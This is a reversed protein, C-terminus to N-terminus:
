FQIKTNGGGWCKAGRIFYDNKKKTIELKKKSSKESM